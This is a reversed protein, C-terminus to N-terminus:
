LGSQPTSPRNVTSPEPIQFDLIHQRNEESHLGSVPFCKEILPVLNRNIFCSKNFSDRPPLMTAVHFGRPNWLITLMSEPPLPRTKSNLRTKMGHQGCEIELMNARCYCRVLRLVSFIYTREIKNGQQEDSLATTVEHCRGPTARFFDRFYWKNGIGIMM